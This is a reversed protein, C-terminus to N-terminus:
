PGVHIPADDLLIRDGAGAGQADFVSLRIMTAPEYMGLEILYEGPPADSRVQIDYRDVIYEGTLWSSTPLSGHGPVSDQQGWIHGQGDILHTFVTYSTDTESLAQWYLTLQLSEGASVQQRDLDYGLFGVLDGLRAVRTREIAAPPEMQHVRGEVSVSGLAVSDGWNLGWRHLPVPQGDGPGTLRLLLRYEAGPARAPILLSHPDRALEGQRWLSTPHDARGPSGEASAWVRGERDQLQLSVRYDESMEDLVQWFLTVEVVEGPRSKESAGSYGLLRLGAAFDAQRPHDIRLSTLPPPSQPAVIDVPGLVVEVGQPSGSEDLIDLWQEDQLRYLGLRLEYAGPPTGAPVLLAHRDTIESGVPQEHFARLGVVPESDQSAWVRGNEETLRFAIKYRGELQGNIRWHLEVPLAGWGAEVPGSSLGYGLLSIKAGFDTEEGTLPLEQSAAYCSLKTSESFWQSFLPYYTQALYGEMDNELIRGLTQHTPLWLFRHEVLLRSLEEAMLDPDQAWVESTVDAAEKPTLYLTPLQGSLYAHFYGIQWPHVAVV